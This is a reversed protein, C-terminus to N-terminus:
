QNTSNFRGDFLETLDQLIILFGPIQGNLITGDPFFLKVKAPNMQGYQVPELLDVFVGQPNIERKGRLDDSFLYRTKNSLIYRM